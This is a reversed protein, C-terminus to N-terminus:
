QYYIINEVTIKGKAVGLRMGWQFRYSLLKGNARIMFRNRNKSDKLEPDTKRWSDSLITPENNSLSKLMDKEAQSLLGFKNKALENFMAFEGALPETGNASM